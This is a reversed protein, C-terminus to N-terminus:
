LSNCVDSFVSGTEVSSLQNKDGILILKAHAPVAEILKSMMAIDIMSAEDILVVDANLPHNKHHKFSVKEPIYGLLKHITSAQKPMQQLVENSANLKGQAENIADLMRIAAKGTPAALMINLPKHADHLLPPTHKLDNAEILLALIRTITTTKGTGPGGSVILFKNKLAREAAVRQWDIEAGEQTEGFYYDLRQQAWSEFDDDAEELTLRSKIQDALQQQYQWYRRLYLYGKDLILPKYDGAKGVVTTKLLEAQQAKNCKIAIQGDRTHQSIELACHKLVSNKDGKDDNLQHMLDSLQHDLAEYSASELEEPPPPASGFDMSMQESSM